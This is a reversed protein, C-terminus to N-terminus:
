QNDLYLRLTGPEGTARRDLCLYVGYGRIVAYIPADAPFISELQFGLRVVFFDLTEDLADCPVVVYARQVGRVTVESVEMGGLESGNQDGDNMEM